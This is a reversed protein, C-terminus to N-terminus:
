NELVDRFPIWGRGGPARLLLLDARTKLNLAPVRIATTHQELAEEVALTSFAAQWATVYQRVRLLLTATEVSQARVVTRALGM